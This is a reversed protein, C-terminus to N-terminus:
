CSALIKFWDILERSNMEKSLGLAAFDRQWPKVPVFAAEFPGRGGPLIKQIQAAQGPNLMSLYALHGQFKPM